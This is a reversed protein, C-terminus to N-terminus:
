ESNLLIRQFLQDSEEGSNIQEASIEVRQPGRRQTDDVECAPLDIRRAVGLVGGLAAESVAQAKQGHRRQQEATQDPRDPVQHV